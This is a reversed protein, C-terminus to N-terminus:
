KVIALFAVEYRLPDVWLEGLDLDADKDATGRGDRSFEEEPADRRSSETKSDM